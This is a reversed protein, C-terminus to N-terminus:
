GFAVRYFKKYNYLRFMLNIFLVFMVIGMMVNTNFCIADMIIVVANGSIASIAFLINEFYQIDKFKSDGYKQVLFVDYNIGFTTLAISYLFMILAEICIYIVPDIFYVCVSALDIADIIVISKYVKKLTVNKFFPSIFASLHRLIFYASIVSATLLMGQLKTIIPLIIGWAFTTVFTVMLQTKIFSDFNSYQNKFFGKKM